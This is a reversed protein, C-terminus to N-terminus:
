HAAPPHHTITISQMVAAEQPVGLAYRRVHLAPQLAVLLLQRRRRRRERLVGRLVGLHGRRERRQVARAREAERGLREHFQLRAVHPVQRSQSLM